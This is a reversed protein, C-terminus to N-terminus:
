LIIHINTRHIQDSIRRERFSHRFVSNNKINKKYKGPRANLDLFAPILHIQKLAFVNNKNIIKM